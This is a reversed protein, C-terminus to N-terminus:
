EECWAIILTDPGTIAGLVNDILGIFVVEVNKLELDIIRKIREANETDDGHGIAVRVKRREKIAEEAEKAFQKFIVTPTDKAHTKLGAPVLVGKKFKLLPRIGADSMKGLIVSIMHSIRGSYELWKTNKLMLCLHVKPVFEETERVVDEAKKGSAVLDVAKSIILASSYSANLTDIIFVKEQDEPTLFKKAQVASNYTGSLKSTITICIIKEFKKLQLLYKELFDKPSPQSTKGFSKIGKKELERMKQFTNDGPLNEIEPWILKVPVTAIQHKEVFDKPLDCAEDVVIGIKEM